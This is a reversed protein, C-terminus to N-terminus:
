FDGFGNNYSDFIQSAKIPPWQLLDGVVLFSLNAFPQSKSCGFIECLRKHIHLLCINSVISIEDNLVVLVESYLNGLGGRKSDSLRSM